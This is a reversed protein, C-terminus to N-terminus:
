RSVPIRLELTTGEDKRSIIDLTGGCAEARERMGLIGLHDQEDVRQPDFGSGDDRVSLELGDARARLTVSLTGAGAHHVANEVAEQAIRYVAHEAAPSLAPIVGDIDLALGVGAREAATEALNRLALPLGLDDLADARLSKLARRTDTLGERAIRLSRDLTEALEGGPLPLETKMAELSVSLATLSHALTDHLERALRNREHSVALRQLTDANRSLELNAQILRRRQARQTDMLHSVIQGVIGFSFARILPQGAITLQEPNPPWLLPLLLIEEVLAALVTYLMVYRFRYQWAILVLPVLLVPFSLWSSQILVPLTRDPTGGYSMVNALVPFAAAMALALPLYWNPNRERLWSVSLYVYLFLYLLFNLFSYRVYSDRLVDVQMASLAVLIAFYAMAIILFYRFIVLLGPEIKTKQAM